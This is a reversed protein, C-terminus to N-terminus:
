QGIQPDTRYLAELVFEFDNEILLVPVDAHVVM